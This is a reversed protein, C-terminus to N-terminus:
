SVPRSHIATPLASRPEVGRQQGRSPRFRPLRRPRGSAVPRAAHFQERGTRSFGPSSHRRGAPLSAADLRHQRQAFGESSFRAARCSRSRPRRRDLGRGGVLKERVGPLQGPRRGNRSLGCLRPSKGFVSHHGVGRVGICSAASIIAEPAAMWPRLGAGPASVQLHDSRSRNGPPAHRSVDGPEHGL